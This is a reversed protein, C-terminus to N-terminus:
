ASERSAFRVSAIGVKKLRRLLYPEILGRLAVASRFALRVASAGAGAYNGARIPIVFEAEFAPLTGLRGPHIFDFLSWLERLSNQIPTGTLAIRHPTKLRKSLLTVNADPNRIRQAEDLIATTWTKTLLEEAFQRLGEYSVLVVLPGSLNLAQQVFRRRRPVGAAAFYTSCGHLVVVRLAPAWRRLETLWQPLVTAPTVILVSKLKRVLHLGSLFAAAQATKGLGMEDGILGGSGAQRLQWLWRVATRQHQFLSAGLSATLPLGDEMVFGEQEDGTSDSLDMFAYPDDESAIETRLEYDYDMFDDLLLDSEGVVKQKTRSPRSQGGKVAPEDSDLTSESEDSSSTSPETASSFSDLNDDSSEREVLTGTLARPAAARPLRAGCADCRNFAPTLDPRNL